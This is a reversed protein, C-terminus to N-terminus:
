NKKKNEQEKLNEQLFKSFIKQMDPFDSDQWYKTTYNSSDTNFNVKQIKETNNFTFETPYFNSYIAISNFDTESKHKVKKYEVTNYELLNKLKKDSNKEYAITIINRFDFFRYGFMGVDKSQLKAESFEVEDRLDGKLERFKSNPNNIHQEINGANKIEPVEMFMEYDWSDLNKRNMDPNDLRFMRYQEVIANKLKKTKNDFIYTIIGDAFTNIKNNLTVYTNFNGRVYINKAVNNGKIVVAQIDKVRDNLKIINQNIDVQSLNAVSINDYILEYKEDPSILLKRDIKGDIDSKALINGKSDLVLVKPLPKNNKESVFTITQAKTFAALLIFLFTFIKLNKM